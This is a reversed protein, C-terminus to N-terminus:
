AEVMEIKNMKEGASVLLMFNDIDVANNPKHQSQDGGIESCSFSSSRSMGKPSNSGSVNSMRSSEMRECSLHDYGQNMSLLVMAVEQTSQDMLKRKAKGIVRKVPPVVVDTEVDGDGRKRKAKELRLFYKQAHSRIQVATKTSLESEIAKWERGYVKLAKVFKAHEEETWYERPKTLVYKKRGRKDASSGM